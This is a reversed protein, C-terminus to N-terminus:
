TKSRIKRMALALSKRMREFGQALAGIEDKRNRYDTGIEDDIKGMSIDNAKNTLAQIPKIVTRNM